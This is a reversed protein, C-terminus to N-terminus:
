IILVYNKNKHYDKTRTTESYIIPGAAPGAPGTGGGRYQYSFWVVCAYCPVYTVYHQSLDVYQNPHLLVPLFAYARAFRINVM